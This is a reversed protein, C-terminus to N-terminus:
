GDLWRDWVPDPDSRREDDVSDEAKGVVLKESIPHSLLVDSPTQSLQFEVWGAGFRFWGDSGDDFTVRCVKWGEASSGFPGLESPVSQVRQIVSGGRASKQRWHVLAERIFEAVRRSDKFGDIEPPFRGTDARWVGWHSLEPDCLRWPMAAVPPNFADADVDREAQKSAASATLMVLICAIWITALFVFPSLSSTM